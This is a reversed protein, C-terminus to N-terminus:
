FEIRAGFALIRAPLTGTFVGASALNSVAGTANWQIGTNVGNFQPHNLVNYAQFQLKLGRREGFMPIFKSMTADLNTVRPLSLM